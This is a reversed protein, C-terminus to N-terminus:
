WENEKARKTEAEKMKREHEEGEQFIARLCADQREQEGKKNREQQHPWKMDWTEQKEKQKDMMQKVEDSFLANMQAM